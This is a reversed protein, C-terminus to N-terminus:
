GNKAPLCVNSKEKLLELLIETVQSKPLISLDTCFLFEDDIYFIAWSKRSIYKLNYGM